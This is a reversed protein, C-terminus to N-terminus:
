CNHCSSHHRTSLDVPEVQVTVSTDPTDRPFATLRHPLVPTITVSPRAMTVSSLQLDGLVM